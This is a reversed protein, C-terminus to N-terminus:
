SYALTFLYFLLILLVLFGIVFAYAKGWTKFIPPPAPPTGEEDAGWLRDPKSEPNERESAM